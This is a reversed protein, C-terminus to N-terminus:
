KQCTPEIAEKAVSVVPLSIRAANQRLFPRLCLRLTGVKLFKAQPLMGESRGLKNVTLRM